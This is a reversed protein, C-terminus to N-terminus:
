WYWWCNGNKLRVMVPLFVRVYNPDAPVEQILVLALLQDTFVLTNTGLLAPLSAAVPPGGLTPTPSPTSSGAPGARTPPPAAWVKIFYPFLCGSFYAALM